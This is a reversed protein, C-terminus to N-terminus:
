SVDTPRDVDRLTLATPDLPRWAGEDLDSTHLARILATLSREKQALLRAAAASAAGVRVALPLQSRQNRLRLAAAEWDGVGVRRLLVALVAESLHPMDGGVVLALPEAAQELGALCGVLPGGAAEPDRVVRIRVGIERATPLPPPDGVPPVVVLVETCVRALALIPRHVLPRGEFPEVLKDRGFRRSRGGALVIGSAPPLGVEPATGGHRNM